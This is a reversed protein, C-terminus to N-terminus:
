ENFGGTSYVEPNERRDLEMLEKEWWYNNPCVICTFEPDGLCKQTKKGNEIYLCDTAGKLKLEENLTKLKIQGDLFKELAKTREEGVMGKIRNLAVNLKYNGKIVRYKLKVLPDPSPHCIGCIWEGPDLFSSTQWAEKHRYWWDYHGCVSCKNVPFKNIM